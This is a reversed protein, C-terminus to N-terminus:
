HVSNFALCRRAIRAFLDTAVAIAMAILSSSVARAGLGIGVEDVVFQRSLTLLATM